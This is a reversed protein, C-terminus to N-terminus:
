AISKWESSSVDEYIWTPIGAENLPPDEWRYQWGEIIEIPLSETQAEVPTFSSILGNLVTFFFVGLYLIQPRILYFKPKM